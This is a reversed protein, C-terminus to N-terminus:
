VKTGDIVDQLVRCIEQIDYPKTLAGRFGFERYNKVVPDNYYGSSVIAKVASDMSILEDLIEKGGIDGPITLDLILADFENGSNKDRKFLELTESGTNTLVVQYGAKRLIRGVFNRIIEEDDMVLIRGKGSLKYESSSGQQDSKPTDQIAPLYISFTTGVNLNSEAFIYGNNKDVISKTIPLGLGLAHTKTTFYPEFIQGFERKSMGTGEDRIVIKVYFGMKLTPHDGMEVALNQAEIELHGDEGIADIANSILNNFVQYFEGEDIDSSWLNEPISIRSKVRNGSLVFSITDKLVESLSLTKSLSEGIESFKLLQHTLDKARKASIEADSLIKSAKEDYSFYMKALSINGLVGTLINNFDHAIGGALVGISRLKHTKQIERKIRTSETIDSFLTAIKGDRVRYVIVTFCNEEKASFDDIRASEGTLAVNSFVTQHSKALNPFIDLLSKGITEEAKIGILKEFASNVTLVRFDNPKGKPDLFVEHVAYGELMHNYLMTIDSSNQRDSDPKRQLHREKKEKGSQITLSQIVGARERLSKDEVKM